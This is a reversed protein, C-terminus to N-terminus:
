KLSFKKLQSKEADFVFLSNGIVCLNDHWEKGLSLTELYKIESDSLQFHLVTNSKVSFKGAEEEVTLVLIYLDDGVVFADSNYVCYSNPRIPRTNNYKVYNAVSELNSFDKSLVLNGSFDYLEVLPKAERVSLINKGWQFLHRGNKLFTEGTTGYPETKGFFKMKKSELNLECIAYKDSRPSYYIAGEHEFFRTEPAIREHSVSGKYEGNKTFIEFARKMENEVFIHQGSYHVKSAGMFEGPGQGKQGIVSLLELDKDLIFVQDRKYDTLVIDKGCVSIGRIDSFFTSDSFEEITKQVAIQFKTENSKKTQCGLLLCFVIVYYLKGM